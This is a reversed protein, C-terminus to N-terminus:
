YGMSKKLAQDYWAYKYWVSGGIKGIFISGYFNQLWPWWMIYVKEQPLWVQVAEELIFPTIERLLRDFEDNDVGWAENIAKYTADTREHSYMSGNFRHEKRVLILTYPARASGGSNLIMGEHQRSRQYSTFVGAELTKIEVDVGVDFFYERILSAFDADAAKVVLQTKFGDPYGAEALLQRAKDPNYTFLERVAEPMDELSTYQTAFTKLQPIVQSLMWGHGGYLAELIEQQNVALNLAQRVRIDKFPLEPKDVRGVLNTLGGITAVDKIQPSRKLLTDRDTFSIGPLMDLKGTRFAALRTSADPIILHRIGDLYPLQNEPHMPDKGWYNPNRVYTLSSGSVYDTLMFPGTGLSNRWDTMDGYKEIPEPPFVEHFDGITLLLYGFHERPVKVELTYRDIVTVSRPIQGAAARSAYFYSSSEPSYERKLSFAVDDATLERGNVPPKNHWRVGKRIHFIITGPESIDYSEALSGTLLGLLGGEGITWDVEDTGAPGRAWDGTLLEDNTLGYTYAASGGRQYPDFAPPDMKQAITVIGGYKPVEPSLLEEKEVEEAVEKEVIVVEEEEEVVAAPVCSALMLSLAMLCSVVIWVIKKKM